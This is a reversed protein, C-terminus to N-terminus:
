GEWKSIDRLGNPNTKGDKSRNGWNYGVKSDTPILVKHGNCEFPITMCETLLDNVEKVKDKPCQVLISDHVQLMLEVGLEPRGLVVQNYINIVAANCLWGITSQPIYSYGERLLKDDFRGFFTRKRGFPTTLQRSYRIEKEVNAWYVSKHNPHLLWFGDIVRRALPETITIGTEEADKNIVEVFRTADMGYNVAHRVKKGLYRQVDTVQDVPIGFIKAATEKHIDRSPDSFLKLLYEDNALAAVVRAEAQSFDRYIFVMGEDAVFMERLYEPINQLNTGSGYISSRSSLRGSRTGTIDFSCRMRGDVDVVANLYTEILKRKQRIRLITMLLPNPVKNALKILADEDATVTMKGGPRRKYQKPLQLKDYVLWPIDKSSSVNVPQGAGHDLFSQLNEMEETLEEEFRKRKGMDIKIGRRTMSMLPEILQTSHENVHSNGMEALEKEQVDRIERTVVADLANYRWFLQMDNTEKWIKGDDKYRPERTYISTQFALGKAFAASRKTKSHASMEDEGGASEAFLAHHALMTDWAFNVVEFGEDRLVTTDFTGNQMVKKVPSALIQRIALLKSSSDCPITVARFPTDSFGVCSLKWSGDPRQVCEIDVGLWEANTLEGVLRDLLVPDPDLILERKPRIIEPFTSEEKVRRLDFEAIAKFDHMRLIASPHYTGVVKLNPILTSPLISGRWANISPKNTLVRLPQAGLACVVNPRIALLDKKLQMLGVLLHPQGAKTSFWKFDNGPPQFHCVNTIFVEDRNIGVKGLMDNLIEGSYGVFPRKLRVENTGPAEGVLVIRANRPGESFITM